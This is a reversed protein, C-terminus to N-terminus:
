SHADSNGKMAAGCEPCRGSVNGTLDYGCARCRSPGARRRDRYFLFATPVAVLVFPIWLPLTVFWFSFPPMSFREFSPWRIHLSSEHTSAHCGPTSPSSSGKRPIFCTGSTRCSGTRCGGGAPSSHHQFQSSHAVRLAPGSSSCCGETVGVARGQATFQVGILHWGSVVFTAATLVSLTTGAVLIFRRLRRRM